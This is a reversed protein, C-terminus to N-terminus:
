RTTVHGEPTTTIQKTEMLYQYVRQMEFPRYSKQLQVFLMNKACPLLRMIDTIMRAEITPPAFLRDIRAAIYRIVCLAFEVDGVTIHAEGQCMASIMAIRLAHDRSRHAWAEANLSFESHRREYWKTFLGEASRLFKLEGFNTYADIVGQVGLQFLELGQRAAMLEEPPLAKILPVFRKPRDECLVIFRPYFGGEMTGEPMKKHLWNITSGGLMTITPKIIQKNPASKLSVDVYENGSLLDTMGMLMGEKYDAGGFFDAFEKAPIVACAPNYNILRAHIAELTKGEIIPVKKFHKVIHDIAQNISTDKGCGSPGVLLVSITPYVKFREQDFWVTRKLQAAVAAMAVLLDYSTPTELISQADLWHHLISGKPLAAQLNQM